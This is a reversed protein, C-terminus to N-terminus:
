LCSNNLKNQLSQIIQQSAQLVLEATPKTGDLTLVDTRNTYLQEFGHILKQQFELQEQEFVTPTEARKQMRSQAITLPLQVYITLDAQYNQMAWQNVQKLIILDLGRGYGQYVLSSDCTRDSIVIQNSRLAPIVLETFHQARDAAFLLFEAKSDLPTTRYQLIQRLSKGFDTGGPEKTLLVTLGQDILHTSLAKALSSKGSGDIGEIGILLGTQNKM